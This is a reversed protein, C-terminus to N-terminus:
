RATMQLLMGHQVTTGYLRAVSTILTKQCRVAMSSLKSISLSHRSERKATANSERLQDLLAQLRESFARQEEQDGSNWDTNVRRAKGEHSLLEMPMVVQKVSPKMLLRTQTPLMM